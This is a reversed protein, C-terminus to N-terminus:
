RRRRKREIFARVDAVPRTNLVHTPEVWGRRATGVGFQMQRALADVRHCDSDVVLTVGAEVARRALRGDMDLHGPAGDIEMATGTAAAAAFLRDFDLEYGDSQAPSRNAPHTIVTVLPHEIARLYRETLRGGDHGGWDHLSALVIDFEALVQDSFDLSGDHMIDVEIGHLVEVGPIRNRVTQIEERQAAIDGILLKRSSWARESHDTIAVYEYGLQRAARVMDEVTGSGDSWITHMHLDGRIHEESLLNPLAGEEAATIEGDGGRLEPAIFPLALQAYFDSETLCPVPVSADRRSLSGSSFKFGLREARAQLADVHARSGTHWVLAAGADDPSAVHLTLVGRPTRVTIHRESQEAVKTV